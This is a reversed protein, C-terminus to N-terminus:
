PVQVEHAGVDVIGEVGPASTGENPQTPDDVFRPLGAVDFPSLEDTVGDSDWDIGDLFVEPTDGQDIGGSSADLRLDDDENGPVNDPGDADVFSVTEGTLTGSADSDTVISRTFRLSGASTPSYVERLTAPLRESQGLTMLSNIVSVTGSDVYVSAAYPSANHAFTCNVIYMIPPGDVVLAGAKSSSRNGIFETSVFESYRSNTDIGGAHDNFTAASLNQVFRVGYAWLNGGGSVTGAGSAYSSTNGVFSTDLVTTLGTNVSIGGAGLSGHNYDIRSNRISVASYTFVGGSFYGYNGFVHVDWIDAEVGSIYVGAGNEELDGSRTVGGTVTVGSLSAVGLGSTSTIRVVNGVNDSWRVDAMTDEYSVFGDGDLDWVACDDSVPDLPNTCMARELASVGVPLDNGDNDGTLVTENADFDRDELDFTEPDEDGAFGGHLEVGGTLLFGERYPSPATGTFGDDPAYRGAAVWVQVREDDLPRFTNAVLLADHLSSFASEWSSGDGGPAADDDVFYRVYTAPPSGEWLCTASCGDGDALNGDDCEEDPQVVGDGCGEVCAGDVCGLVCTSVVSQTAGRADCAVVNDGDCSRTDPVCLWPECALTEADCYSEIEMCDTTLERDGEPACEHLTEGVCRADGPECFINVCAGDVCEQTLDDCDEVLLYRSGTPSCRMVDNDLCFNGTDTCVVEPECDCWCYTADCQCGFQSCDESICACVVEDLCADDGASCLSECTLDSEGGPEAGDCPACSSAGTNRFQFNESVEVGEAEAIVFRFGEDLEAYIVEAIGDDDSPGVGISFGGVTFGVPVGPLADGYGDTVRVRIATRDAVGRCAPLREVSLDSLVLPEIEGVEVEFTETAISTGLVDAALEITITVSEDGVDTPAIWSLCAEEAGAAVQSAEGDSGATVWEGGDTDRGVLTWRGVPLDARTLTACAQVLAGPPVITADLTAELEGPVCATEYSESCNAPPRDVESDILTSEQVVVMIAAVASYEALILAAGELDSAAMHERVEEWCDLWGLNVPEDCCATHSSFSLGFLIEEGQRCETAAYCADHEFCIRNLCPPGLKGPGCGPGCYAVSPDFEDLHLCEAKNVTEPTLDVGTEAEWAAVYADFGEPTEWVWLLDERDDPDLGMAAFVQEFTARIEDLDPSDADGSGANTDTTAVEGADQWGVPGPDNEGCGALPLCTIVFCALRACHRQLM